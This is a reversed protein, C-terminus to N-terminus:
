ADREAVQVRSLVDRVGELHAHMRAAALDPARRELAELIGLHEDHFRTRLELTDLIVRQEAQIVGALVETLQHLIQNGSARAIEGHFTLNASGVLSESELRAGAETLAGRMRALQEPTAHMAALSVSKLEIPIRAEVLDLLLKPTIGSRFIPNTILLPHHDRGVYVGSGHRLDVYGLTQLRRLAERLTPHAVGFRHAMEAISPLRDGARYDGTEILERVRRALEESLNQRTVRNPPRAM